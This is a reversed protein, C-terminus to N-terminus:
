SFPSPTAQGKAEDAEKREAAIEADLADRNDLYYAMAAYAEALPSM